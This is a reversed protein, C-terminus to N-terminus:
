CPQSCSSTHTCAQPAADNRRRCPAVVSRASTRSKCGNSWVPLISCTIVSDSFGFSACLDLTLECDWCPVSDGAARSSTKSCLVLPIRKSDLYIIKLNHLEPHPAQSVPTVMLESRRNRTLSFRWAAGAALTSRGWAYALQLLRVLNSIKGASAFASHAGNTAQHSPSSPAPLSTPHPHTDPSSHTCHESAPECSSELRNGGSGTQGSPRLLSEHEEIGELHGELDSGAAEVDQSLDQDSASPALSATELGSDARTESGLVVVTPEFCIPCDGLEVKGDKSPPPVDQGRERVLSVWDQTSFFFNWRQAPALGFHVLLTKPVFFTPGLVSQGLLLLAQFLIHGNVLLALWPHPLFGAYNSPSVLFYTPLCMRALSVSIIFQRGLAGRQHRKVNRWIQPWWFSHVLILITSLLAIGDLTGFLVPLVVALAMGVPHKRIVRSMIQCMHTLIKVPPWARLLTASSTSPPTVASPEGETQEDFNHQAPVTSSHSPPAPSSTSTSPVAAASEAEARERAAQERGAIHHLHWINLTHQYELAIFLMAFGFASAYWAPTDRQDQFFIAVVLHTVFFSVDMICFLAWTPWALRALAAPSTSRDMSRTVMHCLFLLLLLVGTTYRLGRVPRLLDLKGTMRTRAAWRSLKEKGVELREADKCPKSFQNQADVGQVDSLDTDVDGLRIMLFCEPSWLLGRLQPSEPIHVHPWGRPERLAHEAERLASAGEPKGVPQMHAYLHFTCNHAWLPDPRQSSVSPERSVTHHDGSGDGSNSTSNGPESGTKPERIPRLSPMNDFDRMRRTVQEVRASMIAHLSQLVRAWFGWASSQQAMQVQEGKDEPATRNAFTKRVEHWKASPLPIMKLVERPDIWHPDTTTLIEAYLLGHPRVHIGRVDFELREPMPVLPESNHGDSHKAEKGQTLSSPSQRGDCAPMSAKAWATPAVSLSLTGEIAKLGAAMGPASADQLDLEVNGGLIHQFSNLDEGGYAGPYTQSSRFLLTLFDNQQRAVREKTETNLYDVAAGPRPPPFSPHLSPQPAAPRYPKPPKSPIPKPQQIVSDPALAWASSRWVGRFSELYTRPPLPWNRAANIAAPDLAPSSLPTSPSKSLSLNLMLDPVVPLGSDRYPSFQALTYNKQSADGMAQDSAVFSAAYMRALPGALLTQNDRAQPLRLDWKEVGRADGTLLSRLERAQTLVAHLESAHRELQTDVDDEELAEALGNGASARPVLALFVCAVALFLWASATGRWRRRFNCREVMMSQGDDLHHHHRHYQTPATVTM